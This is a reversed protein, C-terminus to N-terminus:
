APKTFYKSEIAELKPKLLHLDKSVTEALLKAYIQTTTINSHGLMKSVSEIPVGKNLTMTAFTHRALHTTLNKTIGCLDGIEKLYANMKQNSIIPLVYQSDKMEEAYKKIIFKPIDLLLVRAEVNTKNRADKIWIDGDFLKGIENKKLNKLDSYALGTFCEFLYFDRVRELRDIDFKKEMIAILEGDVLYGRHYKDWRYEFDVFPDHGLLGNGDAVKIIKKFLQMYKNAGNNHCNTYHEQLFLHFKLVHLPYIDNLLIDSVGFRIKLFDALRDKTREYRRTTSKKIDGIKERVKIVDTIYQDFFEILTTKFVTIKGFLYNYVMLATVEGNNKQFLETYIEDGRDKFYKLIKNIRKAEDSNGRVQQKERHWSDKLISCQTSFTKRTGNVTIRGIIIVNKEGSKKPYYLISFTNKSTEM